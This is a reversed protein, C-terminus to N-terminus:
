FHASVDDGKRCITHSNTIVMVYVADLGVSILRVNFYNDKGKFCVVLFQLDFMCSSFNGYPILAFSVSNLAEFGM